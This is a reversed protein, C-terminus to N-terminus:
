NNQSGKTKKDALKVLELIKMGLGNAITILESLVLEKEDTEILKLTEPAFGCRQSLENISLGKKKRQQKIVFLINKIVKEGEEMTTIRM